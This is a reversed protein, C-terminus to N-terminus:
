LPHPSLPLSVEAENLQQSLRKQTDELDRKLIDNEAKLRTAEAKCVRENTVLLEKEKSLTRCFDDETYAM